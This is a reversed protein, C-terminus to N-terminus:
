GGSVSVESGWSWGFFLEELEVGGHGQSCPLRIWGERSEEPDSHALSAQLDRPVARGLGDAFYMQVYNTRELRGGGLFLSSPKCQHRITVSM